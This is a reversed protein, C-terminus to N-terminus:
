GANANLHRRAMIPVHLAHPDLGLSLLGAENRVEHRRARVERVGPNHAQVKIGHFREGVLLTQERQQRRPLREHGKRMIGFGRPRPQRLTPTFDCGNRHIATRSPLVTRQGNDTTLQQKDKTRQGQDNPEKSLRRGQLFRKSLPCTVLSLPCLVVSCLGGSMVPLQSSVVSLPCSVMGLASIPMM